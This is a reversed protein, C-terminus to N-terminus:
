EAPISRLPIHLNSAAFMMQELGEAKLIGAQARAPSSSPWHTGLLSSKEEAVM